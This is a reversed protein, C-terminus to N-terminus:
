ASSGTSIRKGEEKTGSAGRSLDSELTFKTLTFLALALSALFSITLYPAGRMFTINSSFMTAVTRDKAKIQEEKNNSQERHLNDLPLSQRHAIL